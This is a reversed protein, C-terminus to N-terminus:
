RDRYQKSSKLRSNWIIPLPRNIPEAPNKEASDKANALIELITDGDERIIKSRMDPVRSLELSNRPWREILTILTQNRLIRNRPVNRKRSQQERWSTLDRLGALKHPPLGM